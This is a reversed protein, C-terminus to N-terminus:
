VGSVPPNILEKVGLELEELPDKSATVLNQAGNLRIDVKFFPKLENVLGAAGFGLDIGSEIRQLSLEVLNDRLADFLGVVGKQLVEVFLNDLLQFGALTHIGITDVCVTSM